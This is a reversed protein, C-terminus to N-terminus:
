AKSYIATKEQAADNKRTVFKKLSITVLATVTSGILMALLALLPKNMAGLLAVIPGGHAVNDTVGFLFGLVCAVASGIMNAPIVAFPDSAAFPIAGESIGVLGMALAAKGNAIEEKNFLAKDIMTALAMGLPAVPIACAQAEMFQTQGSSILGVSFMFAVKGFPGGMDFGQMLGIVIGILVLSGSSLSRLINVLANMLSAIPAGIIFIFLLAIALSALIPIIMIPVLPQIAKPFKWTKIWKVLYGAVLGAIIAGIFGTGAEADYFSGNNAIWGGIMGPALAARDGIAYAIFGGLIPIMLTFGVSGVDLIKNWMSGQPIQLGEPTPKGGLALSLAILLGGVVVFPIMYSVGNMLYKYLGLKEKLSSDDSYEQKSIGKYIPIDGSLAKNILKDPNDIGEKVGAFIVKKGKFRDLDVQKDCAVIIAEAKRIEERTPSNEAGISGNTEVKISIGMKDAAKILSESALYTHAVGVPCGTVGILFRNGKKIQEKQEVDDILLNFIEKNSKANLLAVRFSEDLLKSTIKALCKVHLDNAEKPSAILFFIKTLKRDQANCDIGEKSVGVAISAKHVTDSKAHPLAIGNELATSLQQERDMVDKIFSDLNSIKKEKYLIGALEKIVDQKTHSKLPVKILKESVLDTFQM